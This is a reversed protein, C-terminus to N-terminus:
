KKELYRIKKAQKNLQDKMKPLTDELELIHKSMSFRKQANTTAAYNDRLSKLRKTLKAYDKSQVEYQKFLKRASPNNFESYQHYTHKDDIVFTFARSGKEANESVARRVLNLRAKGEKYETKNPQCASIPSLKALSELLEKSLKDYDYVERTENPVFVYVCVMGDPQYRDSAFWGLQHSADIVLMYDNAPSNFPMGMNQPELFEGEETMRRTVFIDYGGISNTGNNAYYLTQGDSMLYPYNSDGDDTNVPASVVKPASWSDGERHRVMIRFLPATITSDEAIERTILKQGGYWQQSEIQPTYRVERASIQNLYGASEPLTYAALFNAKDVVISDLITVKSIGRMMLAKKSVNEKQLMATETDKKKKELYEIWKDAVVEADDFRYLQKYVWILHEYAPPTKRSVAFELPKISKHLEGLHACCAGYFFNYNASNPYAKFKKKFYPFVEEYQGNYFKRKQTTLSQGHASTTCLLAFMVVILYTYFNASLRYSKQFKKINM